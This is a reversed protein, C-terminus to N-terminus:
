WSIDATYDKDSYTTSVRYGLLKAAALIKDYSEYNSKRISIRNNLREVQVKILKNIGTDELVKSAEKIMMSRAQAASEILRSKALDELSLVPELKSAYEQPSGFILNWLSM